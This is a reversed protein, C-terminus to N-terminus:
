ITFSHCVALVGVERAIDPQDDVDVKYFEVVNNEESLAEFVPSIVRCPGYWTAWLDIAVVKGCNIQCRRNMWWTLTPTLRLPILGRVITRFENLSRIEKVTMEIRRRHTHSPSTAISSSPKTQAVKSQAGRKITTWGQSCRVTNSNSSPFLITQGCTISRGSCRM